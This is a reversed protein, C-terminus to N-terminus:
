PSWKPQRSKGTIQPEWTYNKEAADLLPAITDIESRPYGAKQLYNQALYRPDPPALPRRPHKNEFRAMEAQHTMDPAGYGGGQGVVIDAPPLGAPARISSATRAERESVMKGLEHSLLAALEGDTKCMGVLGSTSYVITTGQHFIEPKPDGITAFLPKLGLEPNAALIKRGICDARMSVEPTAPAYAAATKPPTSTASPNGFPNSPVTETGHSVCGALALLIGFPGFSRIM